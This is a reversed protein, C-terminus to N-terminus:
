QAEELMYRACEKFTSIYGSLSPIDGASRMLKDVPSRNFHWVTYYAKDNGFEESARKDWLRRDTRKDYMSYLMADWRHIPIDNFHEIDNCSSLRKMGLERLIIDKMQATIFQRYYARHLERSNAMYEKRTIM